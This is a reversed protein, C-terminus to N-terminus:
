SSNANSSVPKIWKHFAWFGGVGALVGTLFNARLM